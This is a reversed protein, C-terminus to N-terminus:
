ESKLRRNRDQEAELRRLTDNLQRRLEKKEDDSRALQQEVANVRMLLNADPRFLGIQDDPQTTVTANKFGGNTGKAQASTAADPAHSPSAAVTKEAPKVAAKRSVPPSGASAPSASAPQALGHKMQQNKEFAEALQAASRAASHEWQALMAAAGTEFRVRRHRELVLITFLWILLSLSVVNSWFYASRITKDLAAARAESLCRGYDTDASNIRNLTFDLFSDKPKSAAHHFGPDYRSSDTQAASPLAWATMLLMLITIRLHAGLVM